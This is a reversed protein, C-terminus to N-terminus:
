RFLFYYLLVEILCIVPIGYKFYWHKTKHRFVEMGMWVGFSGGAAAIGFLTREAIRWAGAKAKAKDLWMFCFGAVNMITIYIVIIKM